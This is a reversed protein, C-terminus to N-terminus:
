PVTLDPPGVAAAPGNLDPVDNTHCAVDMRFPPTSGIVPQTNAGISYNLEFGTAIAIDSGNFSITADAFVLPITTYETGSGTALRLNYRAGKALTISSLRNIWGDGIFTEVVSAQADEDLAM